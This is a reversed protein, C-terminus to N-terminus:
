LLNALNRVLQPYSLPYGSTLGVQRSEAQAALEQQLDEQGAV